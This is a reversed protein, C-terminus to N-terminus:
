FTMSLIEKEQKNKLTDDKFSFASIVSLVSIKPKQTFLLEFILMLYLLVFRMELTYIEVDTNTDFFYRSLTLM